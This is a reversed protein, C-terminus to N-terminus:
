QKNVPKGDIYLTDYSLWAKRGERIAQKMKPVLSRRRDAIEKPFQEFIYHDSGKLVPKARRVIERDKFYSFKAVIHRAPSEVSRNEGMRHVRELKLNNVYDQALKLKEVMFRRTKVETQEPKEHEEEVINSFILNNRMSQSQVYLLSDKTYADDAKLRQIEENAAGLSSELSQVRGSVKSVTENCSKLSEKVCNWIKSIEAEFQSVKQELIDLKGLKNDVLTIKRDMGKLLEMVDTISPESSGSSGAEVCIDTRGGANRSSDINDNVSLATDAIM